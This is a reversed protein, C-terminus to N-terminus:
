ARLLARERLMVLFSSVDGAARTEDIGYRAVLEHALEDASAGAVLRRWLVAASGKVSLYRSSKMDLVVIEGDVEQWVLEEDRLRLATNM